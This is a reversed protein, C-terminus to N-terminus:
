PYIGRREYSNKLNDIALMIVGDRLDVDYKKAFEISKTYTELLRSTMKREVENKDWYESRKNQLWEFYEVILLGSNSILAPILDINKDKLIEQGQFDTALNVGEIVLDVNLFSATRANIQGERVATILFDAKTSLFEKHDISKSGDFGAVCGKNMTHKWLENPCIGAHHYIPGSEDEVAIMTAGKDALFKAAWHGANRFGQVIFTMENLNKGKDEAWKSILIELAKGDSSDMGTSGGFVVPKGTVAHKKANRLHPPVTYLYTDLMWAMIQADTNIDPTLIDLEPGINEGLAYVYRRSIREIESFSYEAPNYDIGGMSGGLPIRLAATQLMMWLSMARMDDNTMYPHFRVGGIYPGLINNHQIRYGTFVKIDKNDLLVPFNVRIETQASALIKRLEDALGTRNANYEFRNLVTSYLTNRESM